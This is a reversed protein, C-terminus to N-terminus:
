EIVEDARALLSEPVTLGLAKATKLNIALEYKTPAQVPLDAPKEGKFIRDIYGAALRYLDTSDSGYSILGGGIVFDRSSYVTPVRHQSALSIILERHAYADTNPLVIMGGDSGRALAMVASEIERPDSPDIPSLEVSFSPAVARLAGFYGVGGPGGPFRIVAVRTIRPAIQKLLELWKGSFGYELGAFGTINGGPRALSRVIGGGVPDNVGAFVIPVRRTAKLMPLVTAGATLLVDPALAILEAAYASYRDRSDAGWRWDIRVNRGVTWGLEQLGQSFAAVRLSSEPDNAAVNMLAGVRRVGGTQQARATVPWAAAAGGLLTIFQRRKM